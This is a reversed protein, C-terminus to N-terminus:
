RIHQTFEPMSAEQQVFHRYFAQCAEVFTKLPKLFTAIYPTEKGSLMDMFQSFLSRELPYTVISVKETLPIGAEIKALTIAKDIGGLEDVLGLNKADEGSWIRGKALAEVQESTLNRGKAVRAKFNEYIYDLNKNLIKLQEETYLKNSSWLSANNGVSVDDWNVHIKPWFKELAVKGSIVGISGTITAPQAVIKNAFAAIWYGGSGAVNSMSVIVPIHKKQARMLQRLITESAYASGGPSNIRFIIAEVKDKLAEHFAQIMEAPTLSEKNFLPNFENGGREIAGEGYIIAIKRPATSEPIHKVYDALPILTAKGGLKKKVVSYLEDLYGIHDVLTLELVKETESYPGENILTKVKEEPLKRASAIGKIMQNLLSSLVKQTEERNAESMKHETLTELFSKYEKRKEVQPVINWEDLLKRIFPIETYLGTINLAGMPQLWIEDFATALYYGLMGPSFEGFTDTFFYAFKGTKRFRFLADRLEQTQAIGLESLTNNFIVGAIKSDTEAHDLAKLLNNLSLSSEKLFSRVNLSPQYESVPGDVKVYLVSNAEIKKAEHRVFSKLSFFLILFIITFIMGIAAFLRVLWKKM